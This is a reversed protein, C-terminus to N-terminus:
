FKLQFKGHAIHHLFVVELGHIHLECDASPGRTYYGLGEREDRSFAQAWSQSMYINYM